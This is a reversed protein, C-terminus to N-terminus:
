LGGGEVKEETEGKYVLGDEGKREEKMTMSNEGKRTNRM